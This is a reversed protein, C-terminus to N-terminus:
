ARIGALGLIAKNTVPFADFSSRIYADHSDGVRSAQMTLIAGFNTMVAPISNSTTLHFSTIETASPFDIHRQGTASPNLNCATVLQDRNDAVHGVQNRELVGDSVVAHKPEVSMCSSGVPFAGSDQTWTVREDPEFQEESRRNLFGGVLSSKQSLPM